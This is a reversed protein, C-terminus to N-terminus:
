LELIEAVELNKLIKVLEENLEDLAGQLTQETEKVSADFALISMIPITIDKNQFAYITNLVGISGWQKRPSITPDIWHDLNKHIDNFIAHLTEPYEEEFNEKIYYGLEYFNKSLSSAFLLNYEKCFSELIASVNKRIEENTILSQSFAKIISIPNYISTRFSQYEKEDEEFHYSVADLFRNQLQIANQPLKLDPDLKHFLFVFKADPSFKKARKYLGDFYMINSGLLDPDQIDIVYFITNIETFYRNPSELYEKRYKEQGGYDWVLIDKGLIDLFTREVKVTPKLKSLLDFQRRLVTIISTKGANQIGFISIKKVAEESKKEM